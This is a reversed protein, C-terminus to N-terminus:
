AVDVEGEPQEDGSDECDRDTELALDVTALTTKDSTRAERILQIHQGDFNLTIAGARSGRVGVLIPGDGATKRIDTFFDYDTWTEAGISFRSEHETASPSLLVGSRTHWDDPSLREEFSRNWVVEGWVGGDVSHYIHELFQGYIRPDIEHVVQTTDVKLHVPQAFTPALTIAFLLCIYRFM